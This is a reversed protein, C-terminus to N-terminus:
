KRCKFSKKRRRLAVGTIVEMGAAGLKTLAQSDLTRAKPLYICLTFDFNTCFTIM